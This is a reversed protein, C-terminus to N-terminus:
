LLNDVTCDHVNPVQSMQFMEPAQSAFRAVLEKKFDASPGELNQM